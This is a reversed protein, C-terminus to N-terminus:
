IIKNNQNPDNIDIQPLQNDFDISNQDQNQLSNSKRQLDRLIIQYNTFEQQLENNEVIRDRLKDSIANFKSQLAGSLDRMQLQKIEFKIRKIELKLDELTKLDDQNLQPIKSYKIKNRRFFDYLVELKQSLREAEKEQSIFRDNVIKLKLILNLNNQLTGSPDRTELKKLEFKLQKIQKRKIEIEEMRPETSNPLKTPKTEIKVVENHGSKTLELKTHLNKGINFPTVLTRVWTKTNQINQCQLELEFSGNQNNLAKQIAMKAVYESQMKMHPQIKPFFSFISSKIMQDKSSAEFLNLFKDNVDIILGHSDIISTPKESDLAKKLFSKVKSKKIPKLNNEINGM